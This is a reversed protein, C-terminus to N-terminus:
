HRRRQRRSRLLVQQLGPLHLATTQQAYGAPTSRIAKRAIMRNTSYSYRRVPSLNYRVSAWRQVRTNTASNATPTTV